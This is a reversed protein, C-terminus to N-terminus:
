LSSLGEAKFRYLLVDLLVSKVPKILTQSRQSVYKFIFWSIYLLLKKAITLCTHPLAVTNVKVSNDTYNSHEFLGIKRSTQVVPAVLRREM